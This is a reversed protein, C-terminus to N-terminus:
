EALAAPALVYGGALGCDKATKESLVNANLRRASRNLTRDRKGRPAPRPRPRDNQGGVLDRCGDGGRDRTGNVASAPSHCPGESKYAAQRCDALRKLKDGRAGVKM